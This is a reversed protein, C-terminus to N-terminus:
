PHGRGPLERLHRTRYLLHATRDHARLPRPGRVHARRVGRDPSGAHDHRRVRPEHPVAWAQTDHIGSSARIHAHTDVFGPTITMGSVDRVEADEPFSVSGTAGVATIRNGEIVIDGREIVEDGRMTVLRAGRLALTGVPLDRPVSISVKVETPRYGESEEADEEDDSEDAAASDPSPTTARRVEALSDAVVEGRELDYRFLVSGLSFLVQGGDRTWAPFEGGYETVKTVPFTANAPNQVSIAPAEAGIRPVTVVYLDNEVRALARDGIPAFNIWSANAPSGGSARAFGTVKLHEKEDTGDWRVSVLGRSSHSLYVRERDASRFHPASRGEAPAIRTAVGGTAPYWVIDTEGRGSGMLRDNASGQLVVIRDGSPSWAPERFYRPERSLRTSRGGAAPVSWLHGGGPETWSVVALSRGDTSWTPQFLPAEVDAGVERPPGGAIPMVYLRGLATFAVNGGDPSPVGDRIQSVTFTPSDEIPYDFDLRPGIQLDVDVNFPIQTPATGDIPMRWLQGDSSLVLATGDPTFAFGPLIDLTARSEMDDRQVPYALWREDGTALERIRLGTADEHRSGYVLRAGDPSVAPRFGSGYRSTLATREGTERDYRTLQYEPFTADYTWDGTGEALYVYREDPGFAAGILKLNDPEAVVAVGSGGDRHFLWPKAAGGLPSFTRSAVIYVGDPAWEPSTYLNNNGQTVQTTDSGDTSLIWLNQGGSRDSVFLVETGDPSFRPQAEFAQGTMLPIATGGEIPLTYLDGLLDFVITSGDPSVDVSMWSGRETTFRVTRTPELPLGKRGLDATDPSEQPPALFVAALALVSLSM